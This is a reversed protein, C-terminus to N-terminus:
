YVQLGLDNAVNNLDSAIIQSSKPSKSCTGIRASIKARGWQKLDTAAKRMDRYIHKRHGRKWGLSLKELVARIHVLDRRVKKTWGKFKEAGCNPRHSKAFSDHNRSVSLLSQYSQTTTNYLSRYDLGSAMANSSFLTIALVAALSVLPIFQRM